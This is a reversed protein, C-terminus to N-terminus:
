QAILRQSLLSAPVPTGVYHGQAIACGVRKLHHLQGDSEVGKAAVVLDLSRLLDVAGTLITLWRRNAGINAILSRDLKVVDLPFQGLVSLPSDPAGFSDLTVKAGLRRIQELQQAASRFDRVFLSPTFELCLLQPPLATASLCSAVTDPLWSDFQRGSLNVSVRVAPQGPREDLWRAAQRCAEHLVWTGIPVILGSEEARRLFMAPPLVGQEPRNWRLLAEVGVLEGDPLAVEPQYVIGAFAATVKEM